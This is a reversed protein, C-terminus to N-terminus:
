KALDFCAIVDDNRVVICKNAFAPHAWVAKRGFVAGTPEVLKASSVEEYGEPTLKAIQLTGKENFLFFRGGNKVVFATGSGGGTFATDKDEDFVPKFSAWLREGTELKVARMQGPQDVAYIVGNDIFPT